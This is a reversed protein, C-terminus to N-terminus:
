LCYYPGCTKAKVTVLDPCKPSVQRVPSEMVMVMLHLHQEKESKFLAPTSLINELCMKHLCRLRAELMQLINKGREYNAQLCSSM